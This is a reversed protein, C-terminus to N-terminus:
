AKVLFTKYARYTEYMDAKSAIEWPAHMSLLPIGCDIAEMDYAALIHAITGGGGQDVKGFEGIQWTIGQANFIDRLVGVYEANADNGDKKGKIGGYKSLVIGKGLYPTNYKESVNQFTPDMAATVDASLVRSNALTRRLKLENYDGTLEMLEAVTNELFRSQMGTAGSNGVEEKDVFLVASTKEPKEMELIARLSTYVCIRDDHGYAMIMSRDLGADRARGAPVVELEAAVFDEEV